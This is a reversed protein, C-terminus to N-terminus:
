AVMSPAQVISMFVEGSAVRASGLRSLVSARM